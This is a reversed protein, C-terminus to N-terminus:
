LGLRALGSPGAKAGQVGLAPRASPDGPIHFAREPRKSPPIRQHSCDFRSRLVRALLPVQALQDQLHMVESHKATM